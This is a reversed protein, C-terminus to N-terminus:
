LFPPALVFRGQWNTSSTGSPLEPLNSPWRCWAAIWCASSGGWPYLRLQYGVAAEDLVAQVLEVDLGKPQTDGQDLVFSYPAFQADGVVKWEDAQSASALMALLFLSLYRM